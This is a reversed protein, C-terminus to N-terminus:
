YVVSQLTASQSLSSHSAVRYQKTETTKFIKKGEEKSM